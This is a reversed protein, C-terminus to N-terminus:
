GSGLDKMTIRRKQTNGVVTMPECWIAELDIYRKLRFCSDCLNEMVGSASLVGCSFIDTGSRMFLSPSVMRPRHISAESTTTLKSNCWITLLKVRDNDNKGRFSCGASDLYLVNLHSNRAIYSVIFCIRCMKPPPSKMM